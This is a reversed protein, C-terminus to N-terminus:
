LLGTPEIPDLRPPPVPHPEELTEVDADQPATLRAVAADLNATIATVLGDADRQELRTVIEEHSAASDARM